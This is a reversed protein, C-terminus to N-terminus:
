TTHDLVIKWGKATKHLVLTYVGGADGGDAPKRELHWHGIVFASNADLLHVELDSFTLHGMSAITPYSTQYRVRVEDLGRTVKDGVFITDTAYGELFTETDGKNWAAEQKYLVAKIENQANQGRGQAWGSAALLTVAAFYVIIKSIM